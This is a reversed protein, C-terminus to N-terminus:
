ASSSLKFRERSNRFEYKNQLQLQDIKNSVQAFNVDKLRIEISNVSDRYSSESIEGRYKECYQQADIGNKIKINNKKINASHARDSKSVSKPPVIRQSRNLLNKTM